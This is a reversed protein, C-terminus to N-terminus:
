SQLLTKWESPLRKELEPRTGAVLLISRSQSKRWFQGEPEGKWNEHEAYNKYIPLDFTGAVEEQREQELATVIRQAEGRFADDTKRPPISNTDKVSTLTSTDFRYRLLHFVSGLISVLLLGALMMGAVYIVLESFPRLIEGSDSPQTAYRFLFPLVALGVLSGVFMVPSWKLFRLSGRTRDSLFDVYGKLQCTRCLPIRWIKIDDDVWRYRAYHAGGSVLDEQTNRWCSQSVCAIWRETIDSQTGCRCCIGIDQMSRAEPSQGRDGTSSQTSEAQPESRSAPANTEARDTGVGIVRAGCAHCFATAEPLETGCQSCYM